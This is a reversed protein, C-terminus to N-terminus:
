GRRTRRGSSTRGSPTPAATASMNTVHQVAHVVLPTDLAEQVQVLGKVRLLREGAHTVLGELFLPVIAAPVPENRTLSVSAIGGTHAHGLALPRDAAGTPAFIDDPAVSRLDSAAAPNLGGLAELLEGSAEGLDLKTLLLRDALAVQKRAEAFRGLTKAGHVADVTVAIRGTAYHEGLAADTMLTQLLPAPDALGSTEIVVREFAIVGSRRRRHLDALTAAFDSRMACCLCGTDLQVIQEDSAEVLEHDLGIEGFENVIVATRAFAPKRLLRSLRTTKGSGLFGSLIHVPIV